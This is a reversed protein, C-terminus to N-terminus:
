KKRAKYMAHALLLGVSHLGLLMLLSIIKVDSRDLAIVTRFIPEAAMVALVLWGLIEFFKIGLYFYWRKPQPKQVLRVLSIFTLCTTLGVLMLAFGPLQVKSANLFDIRAEMFRWGWWLGLLLSLRVLGFVGLWIYHM